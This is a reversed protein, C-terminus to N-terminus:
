TPIGQKPIDAQCYSPPINFPFLRYHQNLRLGSAPPLNIKSGLGLVGREM